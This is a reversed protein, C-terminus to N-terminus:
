GLVSPLSSVGSATKKTATKIDTLINIQTAMLEELSKNAKEQSDEKTVAPKVEQTKTGDQSTPASSTPEASEPDNIVTSASPTVPPTRTPEPEPTPANAEALQRQYADFQALQAQNRDNRDEVAQKNRGQQKSEDGQKLLERQEDAFKSIKDTASKWASNAEMSDQGYVSAIAKKLEVPDPFIKMLAEGSLQDLGVNVDTIAQLKDTASQDRESMKNLMPKLDNYIDDEDKQRGGRLRRNLRTQTEAELEDQTPGFVMDLIDIGRISEGVTHLLTKFLNSIYKTLKDVISNGPTERIMEVFNLIGDAFQEIYDAAKDLGAKAGDQASKIVGEYEKQAKEIAENDGSAIAQRLAEAAAEQEETIGLLRNMKTVFKRSIDAIRAQFNGLASNPDSIDGLIATFQEMAPGFGAKITSILTGFTSKLVTLQNDFLVSNELSENLALMNETFNKNAIALTNQSALLGQLVGRSKGLIVLQDKTEKDLGQIAPGMELVSKSFAKQAAEIKDRDGTELAVRVNEMAQKVPDGINDPLINLDNIVDRAEQSALAIPDTMYKLMGMQLDKPLGAGELIQFSKRMAVEAEPGLNALQAAVDLDGTFLDRVGNAIEDVSKGLLKAAQIQSDNIEQADKAAQAANMDNIFGLRTRYDIEDALYDLNEALTRGYRAGGNTLENFQKIVGEIATGSTATMAGRFDNIAGAADEVSYGLSQIGPVVVNLEAGLSGFAAGTEALGANKLDDGFGKTINLAFAAMGVGLTTVVGGLGLLGTTLMSIASTAVGLGKGMSGLLTGRGDMASKIDDGFQSLADIQAKSNKDDNKLARKANQLEKDTLKYQSKLAALIKAQTDEMAFDPITYNNGDSGEIDAM